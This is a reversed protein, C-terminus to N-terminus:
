FLGYPLFATSFVAEAHSTFFKFLGRPVTQALLCDKSPTLPITEVWPIIRRINLHRVIGNCMITTTNDNIYICEVTPSNETTRVGLLHTLYTTQAVSSVTDRRCEKENAWSNTQATKLVTQAPAYDSLGLKRQAHYLDAKSMQKM